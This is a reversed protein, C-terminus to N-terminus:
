KFKDVGPWSGSGVVLAARRAWFVEGAMLMALM